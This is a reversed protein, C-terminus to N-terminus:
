YGFDHNSRQIRSCWVHLCLHLPTILLILVTDALEKKRILTRLASPVLELGGHPGARRWALSLRSLALLEGAVLGSGVHRPGRRFVFAHGSGTRSRQGGAETVQTASSRGRSLALCRFLGLHLVRCYIM